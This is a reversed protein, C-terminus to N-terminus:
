CCQFASAGRHGLRLYASAASWRKGNKITMDFWGVGEQQFGNVDETFPHGAQQAAELFVSHLPNNWIQRAVNLPGGAGGRYDDGGLEHNQSKKFYPLCSVYNWGPTSLSLSLCDDDDAM